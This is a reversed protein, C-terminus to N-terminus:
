LIKKKMKKKKFRTASARQEACLVIWELSHHQVMRVQLRVTHEARWFLVLLRVMM